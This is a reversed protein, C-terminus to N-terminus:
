YCFLIIGACLDTTLEHSCVTFIQIKECDMVSLSV